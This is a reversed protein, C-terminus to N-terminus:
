EDAPTKAGEGFQFRPARRHEAYFGGILDCEVELRQTRTRDRLEVFSFSLPGGGQRAAHTRLRGTLNSSEAIYVVGSAESALRYVGPMGQARGAASRSLPLPHSWKLGMWDASRPTASPVLPPLSPGGDNDPEGEDLKRGRLGTSRNRSTVYRPHLRGFNCLPSRGKERRYCWVLRCELAM